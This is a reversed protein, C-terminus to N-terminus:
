GCENHRSDHFVQFIVICLAFTFGKRVIIGLVIGIKFENLYSNRKFVIFATGDTVM